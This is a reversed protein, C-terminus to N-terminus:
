TTLFVANDESATATTPQQKLKPPLEAASGPLDLSRATKRLLDYRQGKGSGYLFDIHATVVSDEDVATAVDSVPVLVSRVVSMLARKQIWTCKSVNLSGKLPNHWM